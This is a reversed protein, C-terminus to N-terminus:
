QNEEKLHEIKELLTTLNRGARPHHPDLALARRFADAARSYLGPRELVGAAADLFWGLDDWYTANERGEPTRTRAEVAALIRETLRNRAAKWTSDAEPREAAGRVMELARYPRIPATWDEIRPATLLTDVGAEVLAIGEADRGASALLRAAGVVARVFGPCLGAAARYADMARDRLAPDGTRRWATLLVEALRYPVAAGDPFRERRRELEACARQFSERFVAELRAQLKAAEPQAERSEDPVELHRLGLDFLKLADAFRPGAPDELAAMGPVFFTMGLSFRVADTREAQVFYARWSARTRELHELVRGPRPDAPALAAARRAMQYAFELRAVDRSLVADTWVLVALDLPVTPDEPTERLAVQLSEVARPVEGMLRYAAALGHQIPPHLATRHVQDVLHRAYQYRLLAREPEFRALLEAGLGANMRVSTPAAAVAARFFSLGDRYVAARGFSVAAAGATLLAVAALGLRRGIRRRGIRRRGPGAILGAVALVMFASPLYLFREAVPFAQDEAFRALRAGSVLNSLPALSAYFALIAFSVLPARRVLALRVALTVVAAHVLLSPLWGSVDGLAVFAVDTYPVFPFPWFCKGLYWAGARVFTAALTTVPLPALTTSAVFADGPGGALLAARIAFYVAAILFYPLTARVARARAGGARAPFVLAFVLLVGPLVLASEKALTATAFLLWALCASRRASPGGLRAARLHLWLALLFFTAAIVDTRGAIWAVSEAHVPHAAHFLGAALAVPFRRTLSRAILFVLLANLSHFLLNTLHFGVPDLREFGLKEPRLPEGAPWTEIASWFWADIVYSLVIVPRFYGLPKVHAPPEGAPGLTSFDRTLLAWLHSQPAGDLGPAGALLAQLQTNRAVLDVDDYVFGNRLGSGFSLLSALLITAVAIRTQRRGRTSM